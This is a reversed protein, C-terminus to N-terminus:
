TLAEELVEAKTPRKFFGFTEDDNSQEVAATFRVKTGRELDYGLSRPVTGWVKFGRDDKVLMKFVRDGYAYGDQWRTSLVTGTVELREDTVPVPAATEAEKEVYELFDEVETVLKNAFALQRDTLVGYRRASRIMDNWVGVAYFLKRHQPLDENNFAEIIAMQDSFHEALYEDGAERLERNMKRTAAARTKRHREKTDFDPYTWLEGACIQGISVVTNTPNHLYAAGHFFGTGCSDCKDKVVDVLEDSFGRAALRNALDTHDGRYEAAIDESDGMYYVGLYSYDEPKFQSPSHIGAM